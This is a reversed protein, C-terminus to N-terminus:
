HKKDMNANGGVSDGNGGWFRPTLPVTPVRTIGEDFRLKKLLFFTNEGFHEGEFFNKGWITRGELLTRGFSTRGLFLTRELNNEEVFTNERQYEERKEGLFTNEEFHEARFFHEVWFREEM